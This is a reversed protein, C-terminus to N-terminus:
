KVFSPAMSSAGRRMVTFAILGPVMRVQGDGSRDPVIRLNRKDFAARGQAAQGSGVFHGGQALIQCGFFGGAESPLVDREIAPESGTPHVVIQDGGGIDLFSPPHIVISVGVWGAKAVPIAHRSPAPRGKIISSAGPSNQM